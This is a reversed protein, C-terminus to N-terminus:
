GARSARQKEAPEDFPNEGAANEDDAFLREYAAVQEQQRSEEWRGKAPGAISGLWDGLALLRKGYDQATTARSEAERMLRDFEERPVIKDIFTSFQDYLQETRIRVADRTMSDKLTALKELVLQPSSESLALDITDNVDKLSCRDGILDYCNSWHRRLDAIAPEIANHASVLQRQDDQKAAEIRALAQSKAAEVAALRALEAERHKRRLDFMPQLLHRITRVMLLAFDAVFIAILGYLALPYYAVLVWLPLLCAGAVMSDTFSTSGNSLWRYIWPILM